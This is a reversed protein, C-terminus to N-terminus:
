KKPGREILLQDIKGEIREVRKILDAQRAEYESRDLPAAAAAPPAAPAAPRSYSVAAGTIGVSLVAALIIWRADSGFKEM